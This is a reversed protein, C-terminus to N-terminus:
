NALWSKFIFCTARYNNTCSCIWDRSEAMQGAPLVKLAMQITPVTHSGRCRWTNHPHSPASLESVFILTWIGAREGKDKEKTGKLTKLLVAAHGPSAIRHEQVSMSKNVMHPESHFEESAECLTTCDEAARGPTQVESTLKTTVPPHVLSNSERGYLHSM